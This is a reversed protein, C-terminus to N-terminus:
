VRQSVQVTVRRRGDQFEKCNSESKRFTGQCDNEYWQLSKWCVSGFKRQSRQTVKTWWYTVTKCITAVASTKCRKDKVYSVQSLIEVPVLFFSSLYSRGQCGTLTPSTSTQRKQSKWEQGFFLKQYTYTGPSNKEELKRSYTVCQRKLTEQCTLKDDQLRICNGCRYITLTM